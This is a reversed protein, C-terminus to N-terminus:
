CSVDSSSGSEKREWEGFRLIEDLDRSWVERGDGTERELIVSKFTRM